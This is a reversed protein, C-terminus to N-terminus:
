DSAVAQRDAEAASLTGLPDRDAALAALYEPVSLHGDEGESPLVAVLDDDEDVALCVIPLVLKEVTEGTIRNETRRVTFPAGISRDTEEAWTRFREYQREVTTQAGGRRVEKPVYEVDVEDFTGDDALEEALEIVANQPESTPTYSRLYVTARRHTDHEM